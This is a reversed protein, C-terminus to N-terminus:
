ARRGARTRQDELRRCMQPYRVEHFRSPLAEHEVLVAQFLNVDLVTEAARFHMDHICKRFVRENIRLVARVREPSPDDDLLYRSWERACLISAQLQRLALANTKGLVQANYIRSEMCREPHMVWVGVEGGSERTPVLLRVATDRVDRARLGLPQDIFDIEREIGDADLFLVIGTSPTHDDMSALRMRATLLEAARRVTRASGEFDIDKSAMPALSGVESSHEGLFRTWFTVAQGGVLVISRDVSLPELLGLIRAVEEEPLPPKATM